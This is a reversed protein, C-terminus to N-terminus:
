LVFGRGKMQTAILSAETVQGDEETRVRDKMKDLRNRKPVGRESEVGRRDIREKGVINGEWKIKKGETWGRVKPGSEWRRAM